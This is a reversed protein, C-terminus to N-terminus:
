MKKLLFEVRHNKSEDSDEDRKASDPRVGKPHINDEPIWNKSVFYKALAVGKLVSSEYLDTMKAADLETDTTHVAVTLSFKQNQTLKGMRNLYSEAEANLHSSNPQFLLSEPVSFKAYKLELELEFVDKGFIEQIAEGLKKNREVVPEFPVTDKALDDPTLGDMGSLISDGMGNREGMPHVTNAEPDRGKRFPSNPHNFYHEIEAKTEEDSGMLWMVLFFAMMATVFDAYAVKWAGGHHGHGGVINKKRIIIANKKDAL